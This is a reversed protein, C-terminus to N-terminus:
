RQEDLYEKADSLWYWDLLYTLKEDCEIYDIMNAIRPLNEPTFDVSDLLPKLLQAEEKAEEFWQAAHGSDAWKDKNCNYYEKHYEPNKALWKDKHDRVRKRNGEDQMWRDHQERKREKKCKESCVKSSPHKAEYVV